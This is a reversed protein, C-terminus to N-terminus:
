MMKKKKEIKWEGRQILYNFHTNQATLISEKKGKIDNYFLYLSSNMM